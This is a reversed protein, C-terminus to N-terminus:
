SLVIEWDSPFLRKMHRYPREINGLLWSATVKEKGAKRTRQNTMLLKRSFTWLRNIIGLLWCLKVKVSKQRTYLATWSFHV